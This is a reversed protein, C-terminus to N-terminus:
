ILFVAFLSATSWLLTLLVLLATHPLLDSSAPQQFFCLLSQFHYLGSTLLAHVCTFCSTTLTLTGLTRALRVMSRNARITTASRGGTVAEILKTGLGPKSTTSTKMQGRISGCAAWLITACGHVAAIVFDTQTTPQPVTLSVRPPEPMSTAFHTHSVSSTTPASLWKTPSSSTTLQAAPAKSRSTHSYSFTTVAHTLSSKTLLSDQISITISGPGAAYNVLASM